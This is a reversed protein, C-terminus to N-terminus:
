ARCPRLTLTPTSRAANGTLSSPPSLTWEEGVLNLQPYETLIASAWRAMFHKDPYPYTDVRVGSLGAEEIWWIANQILYDAMLPHRQNLDPMDAVFWGDNFRQRDIQAAHPDQNTTRAHNTPEFRGAFNIWEADPPDQVFWHQLGCHNPVMDMIVGLGRERAAAVLHLYDDHNGYRPDIRYFDTMAYGHYSWRPMDNERVPNLWLQTVGLDALYDLHQTIGALDGGHRGYAEARNLGERLDAIEDNSPDGNAFRDPTILYIVDSANFGERDASGPVRPKLEYSFVSYTVDPATLHLELSGPAAEPAIQLYVFLYRPNAVREVRDIHVGPYDTLSVTCDHLNEGYLLLQLESQQMGAWWHAPELRELEPKASLPTLLLSAILAASLLPRPLRPRPM